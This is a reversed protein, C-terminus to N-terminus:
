AADRGQSEAEAKAAERLSAQRKRSRAARIARARFSKAKAVSKAAKEAKYSATEHPVYAAVLAARALSWPGAHGNTKKLTRAIAKAARTIQAETM